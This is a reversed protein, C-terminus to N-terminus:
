RPAMRLANDIRVTEGNMLPNGIMFLVLDAYEAPKGFRQPFPLTAALSDQVNQPMGLMMPTGFLGPAISLVRVGSSALERAAPLTLGVIGGKSAAYAAQGIQGEYAAVSATSIIVGREGDENPEREVMQAAALRMVNFSGILNIEIVRRFDELPMPGDRGVIKKAPAVGACNVAVGVPGHAAKAAELAAEASAADTVDCAYAVGSIEAAVAQAQDTQVDLVAVKAGKEALARATAEGLGSAGGTVVASVGNLEM